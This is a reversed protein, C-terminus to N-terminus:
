FSDLRNTRREFDKLASTEFYEDKTCKRCCKEKGSAGYWQATTGPIYVHWRWLNALRWIRINDCLLDVLHFLNIRLYHEFWMKESNWVKIASMKYEIRGKHLRRFDDTDIHHWRGWRGVMNCYHSYFIDIFRWWWRIVFQQKSCLLYLMKSQM